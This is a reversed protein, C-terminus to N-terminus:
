LLWAGFGLMTTLLMWVGAYGQGELVTAAGSVAKSTSATPTSSTFTANSGAANTTPLATATPTIVSGYPPVSTFGVAPAASVISSNRCEGIPAPGGPVFNLAACQQVTDKILMTKQKKTQM